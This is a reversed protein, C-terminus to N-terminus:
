ETSGVLWQLRDRIEDCSVPCDCGTEPGRMCDTRMLEIVMDVLEGRTRKALWLAAPDGYYQTRKNMRGGRGLDM